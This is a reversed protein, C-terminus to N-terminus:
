EESLNEKINQPMLNSIPFQDHINDKRNKAVCYRQNEVMKLPIDYTEFIALNQLSLIKSLFFTLLTQFEYM